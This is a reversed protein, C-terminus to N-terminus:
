KKLDVNKTIYFVTNKNIVSGSQLYFGRLLSGNNIFKFQTVGAASCAPGSEFIVPAGGTNIQIDGQTLDFVIESNAAFTYGNVIVSKSFTPHDTYIGAAINIIDGNHVTGSAFVGSITRKPGTGGPTNLCHHGSWTNDGDTYNVYWTTTPPPPIQAITVSALIILYLFLNSLRKM